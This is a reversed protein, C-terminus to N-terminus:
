QVQQRQLQECADVIGKLAQKKARYYDYAPGSGAPTSQIAQLVRFYELLVKPDRNAFADRYTPSLNAPDFEDAAFFNGADVVVDGTPKIHQFGLTLRRWKEDGAGGAEPKILGEGAAFGSEKQGERIM